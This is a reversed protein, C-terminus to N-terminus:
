NDPDRFRSQALLWTAFSEVKLPHGESAPSHHIIGGELKSIDEIKFLEATLRSLASPPVTVHHLRPQQFDSSDSEYGEIGEPDRVSPLIENILRIIDANQDMTLGLLRMSGVGDLKSVTLINRNANM